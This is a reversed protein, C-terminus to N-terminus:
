DTGHVDKERSTPIVEDAVILLDKGLRTHESAAITHSRGFLKAFVGGIVEYGTISGTAPDIHVDLLEGAHNGSASMVKRATAEQLSLMQAAEGFSGKDQLKSTSATPVTDGGFGVVDEALLIQPVAFRPSQVVLAGVRQEAARVLVDEVTGIIEGGPATIVTKGILDAVKMHM